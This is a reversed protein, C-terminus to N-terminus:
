SIYGLMKEKIEKKEKKSIEHGKMYIEAILEAMFRFDKSFAAQLTAWEHGEPVAERMMRDIGVSIVDNAYENFNHKRGTVADYVSKFKDLKEMTEKELTVKYAM